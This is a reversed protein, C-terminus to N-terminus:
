PVFTNSDIGAQSGVLHFAQCACPNPESPIFAFSTCFPKEDCVM